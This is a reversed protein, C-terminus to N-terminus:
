FLYPVIDCDEKLDFSEFKGQLRGGQMNIREKKGKDDVDVDVDVSRCKWGGLDTEEKVLVGIPPQVMSRRPVILGQSPISSHSGIIIKGIEEKNKDKDKEKKTKSLSASPPFYYVTRSEASRPLYIPNQTYCVPVTKENSSKFLPIRMVNFEQGRTVFFLEKETWTLTYPLRSVSISPSEGLPSNTRFLLRPPSKATKRSSLRHTSVQLSLHMKSENEKPRGELAAFHIFGGCPSFKSKIFIHCSHYTSCCLERTFYTNTSYNAFLINGDGLPWVLLPVTPHFAPPSHFIAGPVRQSYHFIPSTNKTRTDFIRISVRPMDKGASKKGLILDELRHADENDVSDDDEQGDGSESGSYLSQSYHSAISDTDESDTAIRARKLIYGPAGSLIMEIDSEKGIGGIEEEDFDDDFDVSIDDVDPDDPDDSDNADPHEFDEVDNNLDEITLRENGWDNWEDDEDLEDSDNVTSGESWDTEASNNDSSIDSADLLDDEEITFDDFKSKDLDIDDEIILSLTSSNKSSNSSRSSQSEEVTTTPATSSKTASQGEVETLKQIMRALYEGYDLITDNTPEANVLDEHGLNRRSSVAIYPGSNVVDEFYLEEDFLKILTYKDDQKVFLQSGIRLYQLDHTLSVPVPRGPM